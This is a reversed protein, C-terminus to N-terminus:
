EAAAPAAEGTAATDDMKAADLMAQIDLEDGMSPMIMLKDLADKEKEPDLKDLTKAGLKRIKAGLKLIQLEGRDDGVCLIPESPNFSIHTLKSKKKIQTEGVPEFKNVKMDYVRVKGDTLVCGWMTSSYPSWAVDGVACEMDFTLVPKSHGRHWMKVTWDASCSLFVDPHFPNWVVRYVAMDHGVFSRLLTANYEKSYAHIAGEETGVVFLEEKTRDFDFCCSGALGLLASDGGESDSKHRPDLAVEVVEENVLDNKTLQWNSVRGDSSVSFFSFVDSEHRTHPLKSWYVQWVPETHKRTPDSVSYIPKDPKRVDFVAVTGDYMGVCLLSSHTPHFDLCMVGSETTFTYEPHSTNKLTFCCILGQDQQRSFEYSGFSVAFMDPFTPNWCISSVSKRHALEFAFRWLPVFDGRANDRKFDSKDDADKYDNFYDAESNTHVIREMVKMAMEMEPSTFPKEEGATETDKAMSVVELVDEDTTAKKTMIVPKNKEAEQAEQVVRKVEALYTDYIDWQSVGANYTKTPPPETTVEKSRSPNNQTQAARESFNFQNKLVVDGSLAVAPYDDPEETATGTATTAPPPLMLKKNAIIAVYKEQDRAEDSDALILDGEMNFHVALQSARPDLVFEGETYDFSAIAKVANPNGADIVRTFREDLDEETLNPVQNDPVLRVETPPAFGDDDLEEASGRRAQSARRNMKESGVSAMSKRRDAAGNSANSGRKNRPAPM